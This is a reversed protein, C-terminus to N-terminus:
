EICLILVYSVVELRFDSEILLCVHWRLQNLHWRAHWRLQNLHWKTNYGIYGSSNFCEGVTDRGLVMLVFIFGKFAHHTAIIITILVARGELVEFISFVHM